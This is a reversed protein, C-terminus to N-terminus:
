TRNIKELGRTWASIGLIAGFSLHILGGNSLTLSQWPVYTEIVGFGKAIIPIFIAIFPFFVFDCFCMLMYLWAMAPRWFSKIWNEETNTTTTMTSDTVSEVVSEVKQDM